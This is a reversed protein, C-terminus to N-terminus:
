INKTKFYKKLIEFLEKAEPLFKGTKLIKETEELTMFKGSEVENTDLKPQKDTVFAYIKGIEKDKENFEKKYDSLFIPKGGIGTEEKVERVVTEEYSDGSAVHGGFLISNYGPYFEKKPSRKNVFIRGKKDLIFFWVARHRLGKTHAEKRSAKAVVKNNEDIIDFIEEM